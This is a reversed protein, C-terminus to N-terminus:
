VQNNSSDQMVSQQQISYILLKYPQATTKVM